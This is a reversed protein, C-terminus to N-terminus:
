RRKWDPWNNQEPHCDWGSLVFLRDIGSHEWFQRHLETGRRMRLCGHMRGRLSLKLTSQDIRQQPSPSRQGDLQWELVHRTAGRYEWGVHRLLRVLCLIRRVSLLAGLSADSPRCRRRSPSPDETATWSGASLTEILGLLDGGTDYYDGTTFCVGSLPCAIRLCALAAARRGRKRARSGRVPTWTSGSLVEIVGADASGTANLYSGVVTCTGSASCAANALEVQTSAAGNPLPAETATWTGNSLVELLGQMDGDSDYYSGSAVCSTGTTDCGVYNLMPTAQDPNSNADPSTAGSGVDM